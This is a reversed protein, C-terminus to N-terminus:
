WLKGEGPGWTFGTSVIFQPQVGPVGLVTYRRYSFMLNVTANRPLTRSFNLSGFDSTYHNTVGLTADLTTRGASISGNYYRWFSMGFAGSIVQQTSTLIAGNGPSVGHAYSINATRRRGFDKVLEASIDSIYSRHYSSIVAVSQGILGAFAPDVPVTILGQNEIRAVGGRTRLQMNHNFAYSYILGATEADSDSVHHAFVYSLYSFYAGITTKRTLRYNVDAQAQYGSNGYLGPGERRVGFLAAQYDFSLRNTKRFTLGIQTVSQRTSTDFVQLTPSAGLNVNAPSVGAQTLPEILTGSQSLISASEVINLQLRRTFDHAYDLNLIVNAGNYSAASSYRNYMANLDVGLQDKEWFHRGRFSFTAATGFSDETHSVTNTTSAGVLGSTFNESAGATWTWGVQRSAMPRTLTYTRSLVAPGSYLEDSEADAVRPESDRSLPKLNSEAISGPLAAPVREVPAEADDDARPRDEPLRADEPQAALPDYADIQKRRLEEPTPAPPKESPLKPEAVRPGNDESQKQDPKASNTDPGSQPQQGYAFSAGFWVAVCLLTGFAGLRRIRDVRMTEHYSPNGRRIIAEHPKM